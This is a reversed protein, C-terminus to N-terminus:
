GNAAAATLEEMVIKINRDLIEQAHSAPGTLVDYGKSEVYLAYGEGAVIVGVIGEPYRGAVEEVTERAKQQGESGDSSGNGAQRYEETFLQGDIYVGYGISSRLNSTQDQYTNLERAEASIEILTLQFAEAVAQPVIEALRGLKAMIENVNFKPEIYGM